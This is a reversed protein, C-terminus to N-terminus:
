EIEVSDDTGNTEQNGSNETKGETSEEETEGDTPEDTETKVLNYEILIQYGNFFDCMFSVKDEYILVDVNGKGEIEKFLENDQRECDEAVFDNNGNDTGSLIFSNEGTFTIKSNKFSTKVINEFIEKQIDSAENDEDLAYQFTSLDAVYENGNVEYKVNGGNPDPSPTITPKPTTTTTTDANEESCRSIAAATIGIIGLLLLVLVIYRIKIGGKRTRRGM